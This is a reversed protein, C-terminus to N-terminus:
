IFTTYAYLAASGTGNGGSLRVIKLTTANSSIPVNSGNDDMMGSGGDPGNYLNAGMIPLTALITGSVDLIQVGVQDGANGAGGAYGVLYVSITNAPIAWTAGIALPTSVYTTYPQKGAPPPAAPTYPLQNLMVWYTGNYMLRACFGAPIIPDNLLGQYDFMKIHPKEVINNVNLTCAGTMADEFIIDLALGTFTTPVYTLTVNYQTGILSATATKARAEDLATVAQLQTGVNNGTYTFTSTYGIAGADAIYDNVVAASWSAAVATDSLPVSDLIVDVYTRNTSFAVNSVTGYGYTTDAFTWQARNGVAFQNTFDGDLYFQNASVYVPTGAVNWIATGLGTTPAAYAGRVNDIARIVTTGDPQTLVLNYAYGNALWLQEPLRGASDLVIPNSNAVTGTQTTFTIQEDSNSGAAYSFIKGGALPNGNDDTLQADNFVPSISVPSPIPIAAM